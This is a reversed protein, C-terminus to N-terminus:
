MMCASVANEEDKRISCRSVAPSEIALTAPTANAITSENNNVHQTVRRSQRPDRLIARFYFSSEKECMSHVPKSVTLQFTPRESGYWREFSDFNRVEDEIIDESSVEGV